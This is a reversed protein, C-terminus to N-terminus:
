LWINLDSICKLEYNLLPSKEKVELNKKYTMVNWIWHLFLMNKDSIQKTVINIKESEYHLYRHNQQASQYTVLIEQSVMIVVESSTGGISWSYIAFTWHHIAIRIIKSFYSPTTHVPNMQHLIPVLPPSKRVHYHVKPNWLINPIEQTASRSAAVWTPSLRM